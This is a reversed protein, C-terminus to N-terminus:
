LVADLSEALAVYWADYASNGKGMHAELPGGDVRPWPRDLHAKALALDDLTLTSGKETGALGGHRGFALRLM